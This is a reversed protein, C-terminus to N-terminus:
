PLKLSRFSILNQILTLDPLLAHFNHSAYQHVNEDVTKIVSREEWHGHIIKCGVDM